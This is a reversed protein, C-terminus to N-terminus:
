GRVEEGRRRAYVWRKAEVTSLDGDVPCPDTMRNDVIVGEYRSWSDFGSREIRRYQIVTGPDRPEDEVTISTLVPDGKAM